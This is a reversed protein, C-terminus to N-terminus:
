KWTPVPQEGRVLLVPITSHEAVAQAVSGLLMKGLGTRGHTTMVIMSAHEERAVDLITQWVARGGARETRVPLDPFASALQERVAQEQAAYQAPSVPVVYGFEGAITPAPDLQVSLVLLEAGLAGALARAHAVGQDGLSSSDTTALIKSM